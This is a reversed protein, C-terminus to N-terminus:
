LGPFREPLVVGFTSELWPRMDCWLWEHAQGNRPRNCPPPRDKYGQLSRKSRHVMAACQNLTVRQQVLEVAAVQPAMQERLSRLEERLARVEAAISAEDAHQGNSCFTLISGSEM